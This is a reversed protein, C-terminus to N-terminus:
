KSAAAFFDAQDRYPMGLRRAFSEDSDRDGVMLCNAPDLEYRLLFQLAMGPLPKRCWCGVPRHPHPCYAIEIPLGLLEVTREAAEEVGDISVQGLAVGAQNSVGFLRWGANAYQELVEKRHPMLHVEGANRPFPPGGRTERVTGDLDLFLGRGGGDKWVRQFPIRSIRSFGERSTPPEFSAYWRSLAAPPFCNAVTKGQEVIESPSLNRGNREILRKAANIAAEHEPVDLWVLDVGAGHQRAVDVVGRRSKETPYTNDLVVREGAALRTALKPLLDDLRGGEDDRNLRSWGQDLLPKVSSTKGAAPPGMVIRVSAEPWVRASGHGFAADLTGLQPGTLAVTRATASATISEPRTAGPIAVIHPGLSLTWAVALTHPDVALERGVEVLVDHAATRASKRYGGAPSHAIVGLGLEATRALLGQQVAARDFPSIRLQVVEVPAVGLALDLQEADVNCVGLHRVKGEDVLRALEGMSEEIPVRPDVAHLQLLDLAEVDLARLSGEVAERLHDPHGNPLWRGNPRVLGCKTAVITDDRKAIERLLRENHHADENSQCYADATDFLTVGADLAAALVARAQAEDPRDATSLRMCGLGVPSVEFPGLSRTQGAAAMPLSPPPAARPRDDVTPAPPTAPVTERTPTPVAHDSFLDWAAADELDESAEAVSRGALNVVTHGGLRAVEVPQCIVVPRRGGGAPVPGVAVFVDGAVIRDLVLQEMSEPM